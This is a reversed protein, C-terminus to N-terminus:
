SDMNVLTAAIAANIGALDDPDFRITGARANDLAQAPNRAGCLAFTVGQQALTKVFEADIPSMGGLVRTLGAREAAVSASALRVMESFRVWGPDAQFDWHSLNNPENWFMVAEIM